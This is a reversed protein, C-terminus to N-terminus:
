RPLRMGGFSPPPPSPQLGTAPPTLANVAGDHGRPTLVFDAATWGFRASKSRTAQKKRM